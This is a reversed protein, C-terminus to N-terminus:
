PTVCGNRSECFYRLGRDHFSELASKQFKRTQIEFGRCEDMAALLRSFREKLHNSWSHVVRVSGEIRTLFSRRTWYPNDIQSGTPNDPRNRPYDFRKIKVKRGFRQVESRYVVISTSADRVLVSFLRVLIM